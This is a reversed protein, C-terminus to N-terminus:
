HYVPGGLSNLPSLALYLLPGEGYYSSQKLLPNSQEILTYRDKPAGLLTLGLAFRGLQGRQRGQVPVCEM